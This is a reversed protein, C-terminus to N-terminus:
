VRPLGLAAPVGHLDGLADSVDPYRGDRDVLLARM